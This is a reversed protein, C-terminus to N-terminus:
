VTTGTEITRAGRRSSFHGSETAGPLQHLAERLQLLKEYAWQARIDEKRRAEISFGIDLAAEFYSTGQGLSEIATLVTAQKNPTDDICRAVSDAGGDKWQQVEVNSAELCPVGVM